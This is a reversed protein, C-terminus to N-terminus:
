VTYFALRFLTPGRVALATSTVLDKDFLRQMNFRM